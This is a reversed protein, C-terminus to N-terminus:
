ALFLCHINVMNRTNLNLDVRTIVVMFGDEDQHIASSATKWPLFTLLIRSCQWCPWYRATINYSRARIYSTGIPGRSFRISEQETKNLSLSKNFRFKKSQPPTVLRMTNSSKLPLHESTVTIYEWWTVM